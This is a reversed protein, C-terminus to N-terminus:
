KKKIAIQSLNLGWTQAMKLQFGLIFALSNFDSYSTISGPLNSQIANYMGDVEAKTPVQFNGSILVTVSDSALYQYSVVLYTFSPTVQITKIVGFVMGTDQGLISKTNNYVLPIKSKLYYVSDQCNASISIIALAIILLSKKM